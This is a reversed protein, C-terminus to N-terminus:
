TENKSILSRGDPDEYFDDVVILDKHDRKFGSYYTIWKLILGLELISQSGDVELIMISIKSNRNEIPLKFKVGLNQNSTNMAVAVDKRIVSEYNLEVDDAYIKIINGFSSYIWGELNYENNIKTVSDFYWRTDKNETIQNIIKNIM